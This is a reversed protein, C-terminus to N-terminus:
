LTENWRVVFLRGRGADDIAPAVVELSRTGWILIDGTRVNPDSAFFAKGTATAGEIDQDTRQAASSQQVSCFVGAETTTSPVNAGNVNVPDGVRLISIENILLGQLSM